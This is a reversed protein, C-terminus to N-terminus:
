LPESRERSENCSKHSARLCTADTYWRGLPMDDQVEYIRTVHDITASLPHPWDLMCDITQECLYCIWNDRNLISLKDIKGGEAIARRKRYSKRSM